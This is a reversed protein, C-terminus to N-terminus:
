QRSKLLCLIQSSSKTIKLPNEQAAARTSVRRPKQILSVSVILSMFICALSLLPLLSGEKASNQWLQTLTKVKKTM